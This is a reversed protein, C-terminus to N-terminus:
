LSTDDIVISGRGGEFALADLAAHVTRLVLRRDICPMGPLVARMLLPGTLLDAIWDPDAGASIEGRAVARGLIVSTYARRPALYGDVFPTGLSPDADAESAWGALGRAIPPDTFLERQREQVELLDGVLSGTDIDEDTGHRSALLAPVLAALSGFRRYFAPKNSGAREVVTDVTVHAFGREEVLAAFADIIRRDIVANRPRGRQDM